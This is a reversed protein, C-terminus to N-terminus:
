ILRRTQASPGNTIERRVSERANTALLVRVNFGVRLNVRYSTHSRAVCSWAHIPAGAPQAQTVAWPRTGVM